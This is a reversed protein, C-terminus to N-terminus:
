KEFLPTEIELSSNGCRREVLSVGFGRLAFAMADVTSGGLSCVAALMDMVCDRLQSKLVMLKSINAQTDEGITGDRKGPQRLHQLSEHKLIRQYDTTSCQVIGKM